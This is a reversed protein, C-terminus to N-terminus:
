LIEQLFSDRLSAMFSSYDSGLPSPKIGYCVIFTRRKDKINLLRKVKIM